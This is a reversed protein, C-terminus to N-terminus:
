GQSGHAAARRRLLEHRSFPQVGRL